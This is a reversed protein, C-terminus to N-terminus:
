ISYTLGVFDAFGKSGSATWTTTSTGDKGFTIVGASNVAALGGAIRAGNDLLGVVPYSQAAAVKPTILAPLGSMSFSTSSSTGNVPNFILTVNTGNKRYAIPTTAPAASFGGWTPTFNGYATSTASILIAAGSKILITAPINSIIEGAVLASGDANTINIVGMGNVNITSAGTNTNAPIWYIIIGDTYSTFNAIFTLVYANVTGTDVGGYLTLLQSSTINDIPWGPITNGASDTLALKYAVNPTLWVDAEGRFNLIIPNTNLTGISDKYTAIPTTTGAAYTTLLGGVLPNGNNDWGRFKSNPALVTTTM